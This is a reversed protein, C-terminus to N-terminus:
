KIDDTDNNLLQVKYVLHLLFKYNFLLLTKVMLSSRGNSTPESQQSRSNSTSNEM